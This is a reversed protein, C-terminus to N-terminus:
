DEQLEQRAKLAAKEHSISLVFETVAANSDGLKQLVLALNRHIDPNTSAKRKAEVLLTKAENIQGKYILIRALRLKTLPADPDSELERRYQYEAREVSGWNQAALKIDAPVGIFNVEDADGRVYEELGKRFQGSRALALARQKRVTGNNPDSELALKLEDASRDPKELALYINALDLHPKSWHPYGQVILNFQQIAEDYRKDRALMEALNMRIYRSHPALAVGKKLLRFGEEKDGLKCLVNGACVNALVDHPRASALELAKKVAMDAKGQAMLLGPPLSMAQNIADPAFAPSHKRGNAQGDSEMPTINEPQGITLWFASVSILAFVFEPLFSSISFTKIIEVKEL